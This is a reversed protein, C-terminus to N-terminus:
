AVCSCENTKKQPWTPQPRWCSLRSRCLTMSGSMAVRRCICFFFERFSQTATAPGRPTVWKRISLLVSVLILKLSIRKVPPGVKVKRILLYVSIRSTTEESCWLQMRSCCNVWGRPAKQHRRTSLLKPKWPMCMFSIAVINWFRNGRMLTYWTLRLIM